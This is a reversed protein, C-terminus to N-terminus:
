SVASDLNFVASFCCHCFCYETLDNPVLQRGIDDVFVIFNDGESVDTRLSRYVHQNDGFFFYCGNVIDLGPLGLKDTFHHQGRLFYGGLFANGLIAKSEHDVTITVAALFDEVQMKVEDATALQV